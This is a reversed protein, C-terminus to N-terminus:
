FESIMQYKGLYKTFGRLWFEAFGSSGKDASVLRGAEFAEKTATAIKEFTDEEPDSAQQQLVRLKKVPPEEESPAAPSHLLTM